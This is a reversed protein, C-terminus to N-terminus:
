RGTLKEEEIKKERGVIPKLYYVYMPVLVAAMGIALPLKMQVPHAFDESLAEVAHDFVEEWSFGILLACIGLVFKRRWKSAHMTTGVAWICPIVVATALIAFLLRGLLGEGEFLHEYVAWDAWLLFAWAVAMMLFPQSICICRKITHHHTRDALDQLIPLLLVSLILLAFAYALLMNRSWASHHPPEGEEAAGMQPYEGSDSLMFRVTMTWLFATTMGAADQEVDELQELFEDDVRSTMFHHLVYSLLALVVFAVVICLAAMAPSDSFFHMQLKM